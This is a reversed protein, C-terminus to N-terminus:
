HNINYTDGDKSYTAIIRPNKNNQYIDIPDYVNGDNGLHRIIGAIEETWVQIKKQEKNDPEKNDIEGHPIGKSHTGCFRIGERKRRTCQEANARLAYCREHLPVDNKVRQRKKFDTTDLVITPYNYIFKAIANSDKGDNTVILDVVDKKFTSCWAAIKANIKREM